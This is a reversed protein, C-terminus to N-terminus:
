SASQVEIMEALEGNQFMEIMIDTGGIFEGGVYLQPITPWSSYAKIGSRMSEDELVNFTEFEANIASLIRCATNSFGCQPFVKNGKMFLFVKNENVLKEIRDKTVDDLEPSSSLSTTPRLVRSFSIPSFSSAFSALLLLCIAYTLNM